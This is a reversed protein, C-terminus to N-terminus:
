KGVDCSIAIPPGAVLLVEAVLCPLVEVDLARPQRPHPKLAASARDTLASPTDSSQRPQDRAWQEPPPKVPLPGLPPGVAPRIQDRYPGACYSARGAPLPPAPESPARGASGGSIGAEHASGSFRSARDRAGTKRNPASTPSVPETCTYIDRLVILETVCSVSDSGGISQDQKNLLIANPRSPRVRTDGRGPM